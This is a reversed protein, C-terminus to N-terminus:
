NDKQKGTNKEYSKLKKNKESEIADIQQQPTLSLFEKIRESEACTLTERTRGITEQLIKDNTEKETATDIIGREEPFNFQDKIGGYILYNVSLDLIKCLKMMNDLKLNSTQGNEWKTVAVRSVGIIKALEEQSYGKFARAEKIRKGISDM